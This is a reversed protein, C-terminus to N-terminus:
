HDNRQLASLGWYVVPIEAYETRYLLLVFTFM